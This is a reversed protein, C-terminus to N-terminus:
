AAQTLVTYTCVSVGSKKARGDLGKGTWVNVGIFRFRQSGRKKEVGDDRVFRGEGLMHGNLVRGALLERDRQRQDFRDRGWFSV